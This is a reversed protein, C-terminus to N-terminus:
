AGLNGLLHESYSEKKPKNDWEPQQIIEEVCKRCIHPGKLSVTLDNTFSTEGARYKLCFGQAGTSTANAVITRHCFDCVFDVKASM